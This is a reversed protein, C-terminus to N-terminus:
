LVTLFDNTSRFCFQLACVQESQKLLVEAGPISDFTVVEGYSRPKNEVQAETPRGRDKRHLLAPLRERFLGMLSRAAMMVSKEKYTKYMVLDRLLDEGMALPCRSCIARTANLGIAMVDSSNRETIFNNAITKLVPEVVDGPVLEHSAQAAFQLIRTVQRQHPQLFRPFTRENAFHITRDFLIM